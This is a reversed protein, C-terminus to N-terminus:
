TPMVVCDPLWKGRVRQDVVRALAPQEAHDVRLAREFLLHRQEPV